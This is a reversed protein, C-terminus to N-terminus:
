SADEAPPDKRIAESPESPKMVVAELLKGFEGSKGSLTENGDVSLTFEYWFDSSRPIHKLEITARMGGREWGEFDDRYVEVFGAEGLARQAREQEIEREADRVEGAAATISETLHRAETRYRSERAMTELSEINDADIGLSECLAACREGWAIDPAAQEILWAAHKLQSAALIKVSGQLTGMKCAELRVDVPYLQRM